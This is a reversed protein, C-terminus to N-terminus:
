LKIDRLRRGIAEHDLATPDFPGGNWELMQAHEHYSYPGGVDEPPCANADGVCLPVPSSDPPLVKEAKIYHEWNGGFDYVYRFSKM